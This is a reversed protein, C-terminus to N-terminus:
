LFKEPAKSFKEKCNKTCFYLTKSAKKLTNSCREPHKIEWTPCVTCYTKKKAIKKAM